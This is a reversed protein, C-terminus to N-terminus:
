HIANDINSGVNSIGPLEYTVTTKKKPIPFFMENKMGIYTALIISDCVVDYVFGSGFRVYIHCFPIGFSSLINYLSMQAGVIYILSFVSMKGYFEILIKPDCCVIKMGCRNIGSVVWGFLLVLLCLGRPIILFWTIYQLDFAKWFHKLNGSGFIEEELNSILKQKYVDLRKKLPDVLNQSINRFKHVPRALVNVDDNERFIDRLTPIPLCEKESDIEVRDLNDEFYSIKRFIQEIRKGVHGRPQCGMEFKPKFNAMIAFGCGLLTFIIPIIWKWPSLQHKIYTIHPKTQIVNGTSTPLPVLKRKELEEKWEIEANTLNEHDKSYVLWFHFAVIWNLFTGALAFGTASIALKWGINYQITVEAFPDLILNLLKVSEELIVTNILCAVILIILSPTLFSWLRASMHNTRQSSNFFLIRSPWFAGFLAHIGYYAPPLLVLIRAISMSNSAVILKKSHRATFIAFKTIASAVSWLNAQVRVLKHALNTLGNAAQALYYSAKSGFSAIPAIPQFPFLGILAALATSTGITAYLKDCTFKFDLSTVLVKLRTMISTLDHNFSDVAEIVDKAFDKAEFILNYQDDHLLSVVCIIMGVLHLITASTSLIRMIKRSDFINACIFGLIYKINIVIGIILYLLGALVLISMYQYVEFTLTDKFWDLVWYNQGADVVVSKMALFHELSCALTYPALIWISYPIWPRFDIDQINFVEGVIKEAKYQVWKLYLKQFILIMGIFEIVVSAAVAVSFCIKPLIEDFVVAGELPQQKVWYVIIVIITSGDMIFSLFYIILIMLVALIQLFTLWIWSYTKRPSITTSIGINDKVTTSSDNQHQSDKFIWKDAKDKVNKDNLQDELWTIRQTLSCFNLCFGIISSLFGIFVGGIIWIVLMGATTSTQFKELIPVIFAMSTVFILGSGIRFQWRSTCFVFIISTADTHLCSLEGYERWYFSITGVSDIYVLLALISLYLFQVSILANQVFYHYYQEDQKKKWVLSSSSINSIKEVSLNWVLIFIVMTASIFNALRVFGISLHMKPLSMDEDNPDIDNEDSRLDEQHNEVDEEPTIEEEEKRGNHKNSYNEKSPQPYPFDLKDKM